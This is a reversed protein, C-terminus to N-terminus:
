VKSDNDFSREINKMKEDLEEVKDHLQEILGPYILNIGNSLPLEVGNCIVKTHSKTIEALFRKVQKLDRELATYQNVKKRIAKIDM